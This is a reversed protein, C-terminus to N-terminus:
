CIVFSPLHCCSKQTVLNNLLTKHNKWYQAEHFSPLKNQLLPFLFPLHNERQGSSEARATAIEIPAISRMKVQSGGHLKGLRKAIGLYDSLIPLTIPVFRLVAADLTAPWIPLGQSFSNSLRLYKQEFAGMSSHSFLETLFIMLM